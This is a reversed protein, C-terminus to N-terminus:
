SAYEEKCPLNMGQRNTHLRVEAHQPSGHKYPSSPTLDVNGTAAPVPVYRWEGVPDDPNPYIDDEWVKVTLEDERGYNSDEDSFVEYECELGAHKYM